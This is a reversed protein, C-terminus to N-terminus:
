GVESRKACYALRETINGIRHALDAIESYIQSSAGSVPGGAKKDVVSGVDPPSESLVATFKERILDEVSELYDVRGRLDSLAMMVGPTSDSRASVEGAYGQESRGIGTGSM